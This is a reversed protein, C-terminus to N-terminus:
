NLHSSCHEILMPSSPVKPGISDSTSAINRISDGHARNQMQSWKLKTKTALRRDRM